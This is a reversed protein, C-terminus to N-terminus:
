GQKGRVWTQIERLEPEWEKKDMRLTMFTEFLGALVQEFELLMEMRLAMADEFPMKGPSPINLGSFHFTEGDLALMWEASDRTLKLKTKRLKKGELLATGAEPATAPSDGKLTSSRADGYAAELMIPGMMEVQIPKQKLVDLKGDREARFWLWTLFEKGIFAKQQILELMGM